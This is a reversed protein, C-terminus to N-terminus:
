IIDKVSICSLLAPTGTAWIQYVPTYRVLAMERCRRFMYPVIESEGFEQSILYAPTQIIDKVTNNWRIPTSVTPYM